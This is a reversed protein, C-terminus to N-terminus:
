GATASGALSAIREVTAPSDDLVVRGHAARFLRDNVARGLGDPVVAPVVLVAAGASDARRLTAYLQRAALSPDAPLEVASADVGTRTLGAVLRRAVDVGGEVLVLPTSPAYHRLFEGPAAASRDQPTARRARHRVPGVVDVLDELTVGGPRLMEPVDGSLDVVTSEVGLPTPGGDLLLDFVGDLEDTVHAATTPSIRGFRNASPAAVPIGAARLLADAVPHAPVRVAVTPRGASIEATLGGSRPLVLTLPGPWFAAALRGAAAPWESAVARADDASPVHVILPDTSPRGKGEFVRRIAEPDRADAGLGYVTETPFAVLRGDRLLRAAHEITDPDPELPDVAVVSDPTAGTPEQVAVDHM